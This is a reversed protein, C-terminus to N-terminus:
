GAALIFSNGRLWTARTLQALAARLTETEERGVRWGEEGFWGLWEEHARCNIHGRGSQGPPAATFYIWRRAANTVVTVLESSRAPNIHEAVEVCCVLDFSSPFRQPVEGFDGVVVAPAVESPLVEAVEPSLEIGAIEKGAAAFRELLFGNACGVDLVSDFRLLDLLADALLAYDQRLAERKRFHRAAFPSPRGLRKRLRDLLHPM